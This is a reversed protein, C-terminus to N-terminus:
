GGAAFRARLRSLREWGEQRMGASLGLRWFCLAAITGIISGSVLFQALPSLNRTPYWIAVAAIVMCLFVLAPPRLWHFLIERVNLNFYKTSRRVGYVGSFFLNTLIGGLIVGALGLHPALLLGLGVFFVGEAFYIYKMAGVHKTICALGIHCRTSAYVMLSCAMLIDNEIPWSIRDLTWIKLFARNCLAMTVAIAASASGSLIILDRFRTQLRAKEGRVMMESFAALSFDLLRYVLQQSLMFLKTAISWIANAELGLTRTIVLSQSATILQLGIAVLFLDTGYFFLEKFTARNPRGWRGRAPFLRLRWTQWLTFIGNFAVTAGGGLLMSYLGWSSTFGVWLGVLGVTIAALNSYNCIDYRQHAQLIFSFIRMVFSLAVMVCQWIVLQRFVSWYETQVDMWQPLWYSILGGSGAIILGQVLLVLLGTQIVAGYKTSVPDDKHDILIRAVAGSMGLDVVLMNFNCVQTVLIWLGFEKKSLYHLALPVSALTYLVNAAILAYGSFLSHAFRKFRSM